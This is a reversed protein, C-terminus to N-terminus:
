VTIDDVPKAMDWFIEDIDGPYLPELTQVGLIKAYLGELRAAEHVIKAKALFDLDIAKSEVLESAMSVLMWLQTRTFPALNYQQLAAVINAPSRPREDLAALLQENDTSSQLAHIRPIFEKILVARYTEWETQQSM